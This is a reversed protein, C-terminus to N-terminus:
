GGANTAPLVRIISNNSINNDIFSKYNDLMIGGKIALGYGESSPPIFYNAILEGIVENGTMSGDMTVSIIRGDTPHMFEIDLDNNTENNM